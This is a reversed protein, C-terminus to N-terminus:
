QVENIQSSHRYIKKFQYLDKTTNINLRVKPEILMLGSKDIISNVLRTGRPRLKRAEKEIVTLLNNKFIFPADITINPKATKYYSIVRGHADVNYSIFSGSLPALDKPVANCAVSTRHRYYVRFLNELLEESYFLDGYTWIFDRKGIFEIVDKVRFTKLPHLPNGRKHKTFVYNLKPFEGIRVSQKLEAIQWDAEASILIERVGGKKLCFLQYSLLPKNIIRCLGKPIISYTVGPLRSGKGGITVVVKM